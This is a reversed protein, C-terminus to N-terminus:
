CGLMGGTAVGQPSDHFDIMSLRIAEAVDAADADGDLDGTPQALSAVQAQSEEFDELSKAIANRYDEDESDEAAAAAASSAHAPGGAGNRATLVCEECVPVYFEKTNRKGNLFQGQRSELVQDIFHRSVQRVKEELLCLSM